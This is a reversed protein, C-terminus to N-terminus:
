SNSIRYELLYTKTGILEMLQEKCGDQTLFEGIKQKLFAKEEPLFSAFLSKWISYDLIFFRCCLFLPDSSFDTFDLNILFMVIEHATSESVRLYRLIEPNSGIIEIGGTTVTYSILYFAVCHMDFMNSEISDVIPMYKEMKSYSRCFLSQFSDGLYGSAYFNIHAFFNFAFELAQINLSPEISDPLLNSSSSTIFKRSCRM